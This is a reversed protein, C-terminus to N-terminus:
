NETSGCLRLAREALPLVDELNKGYALMPEVTSYLDEAARNLAYRENDIEITPIGAQECSLTGEEAEFPWIEEGILESTVYGNRISEALAGSPPEMEINVTTDQPVSFRDNIDFYNPFSSKYRYDGEKLLVTFSPGPGHEEETWDFMFRGEVVVNAKAPEVNFRVYYYPGWGIALEPYRSRMDNFANLLDTVEFTRTIRRDNRDILEITYQETRSAESGEFNQFETIPTVLYGYRGEELVTSWVSFEFYDLDEEHRDARVRTEGNRTFEANPYFRIEPVEGKGVVVVKIEQGDVNTVRTIRGKEVQWGKFMYPKEKPEAVRTSRPQGSDSVITDIQPVGLESALENYTNPFGTFIFRRLAADGNKDTMEIDVFGDTKSLRMFQDVFNQSAVVNTLGLFSIGQAEWQEPLPNATQIDQNFSYRVKAGVSTDLRLEAHVKINIEGNEEPIVEITGPNNEKPDYSYVRNTDVYWYKGAAQDLQWQEQAFVKGFVLLLMFPLLVGYHRASVNVRFKM